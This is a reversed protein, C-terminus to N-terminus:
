QMILNVSYSKHDSNVITKTLGSYCNFNDSMWIQDVRLVPIDNLITNGWGIGCNKFSDKLKSRIESFVKDGQPVNFDGGVITPLKSRLLGKVEMIQDLQKLRVATQEKWCDVNWLDIRPNSTVLRLSVILFSTGNINAIGATYFTTDAIKELTGKVLISTDVGYLIQYDKRNSLASELDAKKPSEQILIVDADVDIVENVAAMLSSSNLTVVKLSKESFNSTPQLLRCM